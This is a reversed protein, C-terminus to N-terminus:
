CRLFTSVSKAILALLATRVCVHTNWAASERPFAYVVMRAHTETAYQTVM